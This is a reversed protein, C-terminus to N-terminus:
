EAYHLLFVEYRDLHSITVDRRATEPM